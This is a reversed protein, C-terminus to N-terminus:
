QLRYPGIGKYFLAIKCLMNKTEPLSQSRPFTTLWVDNGHGALAILKRGLHLRWWQQERGDRRSRKLRLLLDDNLPNTLAAGHDRFFNNVLRWGRRRRRARGSPPDYRSPGRRGDRQRREPDPSPMRRM